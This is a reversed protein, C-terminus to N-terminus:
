TKEGQPRSRAKRHSEWVTLGLAVLVLIAGLIEQWHIVEQFVWWGIALSTLLESSGGIATAAAGVVPAGASMLLQPIISNVTSLGLVSM